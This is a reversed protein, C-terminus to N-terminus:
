PLFSVFFLVPGVLSVCPLHPPFLLSLSSCLCSVYYPCAFCHCSLLSLFFVPLTFCFMVARSGVFYFLLYFVFGSGLCFGFNLFSCCIECVMVTLNLLPYLIHEKGIEKALTIVETYLRITFTCNLIKGGHKAEGSSRSCFDLIHSTIFEDQAKPKLDM